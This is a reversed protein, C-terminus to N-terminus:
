DIPPTPQLTRATEVGTEIRVMLSNGSAQIHYAHPHALDVVVRTVLPNVLFLSASVAQVEAGRVPIRQPRLLRVDVLDLIIREPKSLASASGRLPKSAEIRVTIADKERSVTVSRVVGPEQSKAAQHPTTEEDGSSQATSAPVPVPITPDQPLAPLSFAAAILLLLVTRQAM